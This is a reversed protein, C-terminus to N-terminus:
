RRSWARQCYQRVLSCRHRQHVRSGWAAFARHYILCRCTHQDHRSSRSLTTRIGARGAAARSKAAAWGATGAAWMTGATPSWATATMDTVTLTADVTSKPVMMAPLLLVVCSPVTLTVAWPCAEQVAVTAAVSKVRVM